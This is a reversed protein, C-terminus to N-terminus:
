CGEMNKLKIFEDLEERMKDAAKIVVKINEQTISVKEFLKLQRKVTRSLKLFELVDPLDVKKQEKNEM